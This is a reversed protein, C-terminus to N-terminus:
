RFVNIRNLNLAINKSGLEEELAALYEAYRASDVGFVERLANGALSRASPQAPTKFWGSYEDWPPPYQM